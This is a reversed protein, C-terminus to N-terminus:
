LLLHFLHLGKGVDVTGGRNAPFVVSDSLIEDIVLIDMGDNIRIVDGSCTKQLFEPYNFAEISISFPRGKEFQISKRLNSFRIKYGPLDLLLRVQGEVSSRIRNVEAILEKGFSFSGNIRFITAGNEAFSLLKDKNTM